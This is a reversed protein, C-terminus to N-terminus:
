HHSDMYEKFSMAKNIKADELSKLYLIEMDPLGKTRICWLQEEWIIGIKGDQSIYGKVCSM